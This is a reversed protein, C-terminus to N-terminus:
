SALELVHTCAVEEVCPRFGLAEYFRAASASETRLRLRDFSERATAVVTAALRTGVGRRRVEAVVYLHRVRSVWGAALYPDVSLGCVGVVRGDVVAAFLVEGPGAFRNVGGVWEDVLRRVFAFGAEESETVLGALREPPLEDLHVISLEANM